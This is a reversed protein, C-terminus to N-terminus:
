PDDGYQDRRTFVGAPSEVWIPLCLPTFLEDLDDHMAKIRFDMAVLKRVTVDQWNTDWTFDGDYMSGSTSAPRRVSALPEVLQSLTTLLESWCDALDAKGLRVRDNLINSEAGPALQLSLHSLQHLISSFDAHNSFPFIATYDLSTLNWLPQVTFADSHQNQNGMSARSPRRIISDKISYVLSPPGREFFEYTGYAKLFPGENLGLHTWPRLNLVSSTAISPYSTPISRLSAYTPIETNTHAQKAQHLTLIHFDMEGFAWDGFTDIACNTLSALDLPPAVITITSPDIVTLLHAWFAASAPFRWDKDAAEHPFRHLKAELMRDTYLVFNDVINALDNRQVFDVFDRMSHYFRRIWTSTTSPLVTSGVGSEAPTGIQSEDLPLNIRRQSLSTTVMDIHYQDTDGLGQPGTTLTMGTAIVSRDCVPCGTRNIEPPEDLRLRAHKFLTPLVLRRWRKSVLSLGKLTRDESDTLSLSPEQRLRHSSPPPFDLIQLILLQLEEPLSDLNSMHSITPIMSHVHPTLYSTYTICTSGTRIVHPAPRTRHYGWVRFHWYVTCDRCMLKRIVSDVAIPINDVSTIISNAVVVM